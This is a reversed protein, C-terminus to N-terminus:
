ESGIALSGIQRARVIFRKPAPGVYYFPYCSILTLTRGGVSDLVSVDGPAVIRISEVEYHLPGYATNLIVSDGPGIKRLGRFFTDRHGALAANGLQGPLPTEPMHGVARSLVSASVGQAVMVDIGLRPIQLEGIVEGAAPVRTGVIHPPQPEVPHEFATRSMKQYNIASLAAYAAYVLAAVGICLFLFYALQVWNRRTVRSEPISSAFLTLM